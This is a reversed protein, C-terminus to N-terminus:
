WDPGTVRTRAGSLRPPRHRRVLRVDVPRRRTRATGLGPSHVMVAHGRSWRLFIAAHYVGGSGYFFMLDGSRM